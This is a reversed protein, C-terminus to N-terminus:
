QKKFYKYLIFGGLVFITGIYFYKENKTLVELSYVDSLKEKLVGLKITNDSLFIEKNNDM